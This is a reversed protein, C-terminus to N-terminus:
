LRNNVEKPTSGPTPRWVSKVYPPPPKNDMPSGAFWTKLNADQKFAELKTELDEASNSHKKTPIFNHSLGLLERTVKSVVKGHTLDHFALNRPRSLYYWRVSNGIVISANKIISLFPDPIFGFTAMTKHDIANRQTQEENCLAHWEKTIGKRIAASARRKKRLHFRKRSRRGFKNADQCTM